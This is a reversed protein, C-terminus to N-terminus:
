PEAGGALNPHHAGRSTSAGTVLEALNALNAGTGSWPGTALSSKQLRRRYRTACREPFLLLLLCCCMSGSRLVRTIIRHSPLRIRVKQARPHSNNTTMRCRASARDRRRSRLDQWGGAARTANPAQWVALRRPARVHASWACIVLFRTRRLLYHGTPMIAYTWKTPRM